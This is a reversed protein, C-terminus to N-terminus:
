LKRQSSAEDQTVFRPSPIVRAAPGSSTADTVRSASATAIAANSWRSGQSRNPRYAPTTASRSSRQAITMTVPRTRIAIRTRSVVSITVRWTSMVTTRATKNRNPTVSVKPSVVVAV